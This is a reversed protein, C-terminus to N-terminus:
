KGVKVRVAQALNQSLEALYAIFEAENTIGGPEGEWAAVFYYELEQGSPNLEVIHSHMDESFKAFSSPAFLVALGLMDNNLSQQGFTALYGYHDKDGPSEIRKGAKDKVIGTCINELNGNLRLTQRTHRAGAHISIVSQVDSKKDGVQWGFYNTQISSFVPGNELIRCSVSDTLEVRTVMGNHVYGVSGVGLSKGVKMVDMGWDQMEHYSGFGDQGVKQLVMERTKKGFVDTANRQDLYFRYGVLDSEWGPGEYRIFWSHDKHERPVRLFDVNKFTGGVYERNVFEGGFKHSLEAQTRKVHNRQSVGNKKFRVTLNVTENARMRDLVVVIGEAIKDQKNYQGSIEKKDQMVVFADPNFGKIVKTIETSPIHVFVNKRNIGAPNSVTVQFSEPFEKKLDQGNVYSLRTMVFVVCLCAIKVWGNPNKSVRDNM